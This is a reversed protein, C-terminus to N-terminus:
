GIKQLHCANFLYFNNCTGTVHYNKEYGNKRKFFSQISDGQTNNIKDIFKLSTEKSDIIRSHLFDDISGNNAEYKM